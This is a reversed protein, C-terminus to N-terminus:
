ESFGHKIYAKTSVERRFWLDVNRFAEPCKWCKALIYFTLLDLVSRM